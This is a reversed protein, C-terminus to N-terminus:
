KSVEDKDLFKEIEGYFDEILKHVNEYGYDYVKNGIHKHPKRGEHNDFCIVRQNNKVLTLSFKPHGNTQFIKIDIFVDESLYIKEMYPLSVVMLTM